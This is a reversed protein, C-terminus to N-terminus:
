PGASRGCRRIRRGPLGGFTRPIARRVRGPKPPGAERSLRRLGRTGNGFGGAMKAPSKRKRPHRAGARSTCSRAPRRRPRCASRGSRARVTGGFGSGRNRDKTRVAAFRSVGNESGDNRSMHGACAQLRAGSAFPGVRKAMGVGVPTGPVGHRVRRAPERLREPSACPFRTRSRALTAVVAMTRASLFDHTVIGSAHAGEFIADFM